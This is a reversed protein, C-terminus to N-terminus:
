PLLRFIGDAIIIFRKHIGKLRLSEQLHKIIAVEGLTIGGLFIIISVDRHQYNKKNSSSNSNSSKIRSKKSPKPVLALEQVVMKNGYIKEFLEKTAILSPERSLIFPQQSSYSKSLFTREYLLQLIRITIPVVGCFAFSLSTPSSAEKEANSNENEDIPLTELWKAISRYNRKLLLENGSSKKALYKMKQLRQLIFLTDIGFRDILDTKLSEFDSDKIGRKCLAILSVLKLIRDRPVENEYILDMLKLYLESSHVYDSLIDQELELIRSFQLEPNTEVQELVDSSLLTHMKLLRQNEQLTSLSEVFNKIEGVTEATHRSDYKIQLEKAMKNLTPGITGFNCYKIEQWIDDNVYNLKIDKKTELSSLSQDFKFFDDIIGIYSLQTLLPTIPDVDREIVILDTELNIDYKNEYLTSKIFLDNQDEERAMRNKLQNLLITSEDGISVATTITTNTTKLLSLVCNIMNNRLISRTCQKMSSRNPHYLSDNDDNLLVNALLLDDDIRPIPLTFWPYLKSRPIQSKIFHPLEELHNTDQTEWTSYIINLKNITFKSQIKTFISPVILNVKVDILFVLEMGPDNNMITQLDDIVQNEDLIVIKRVPTRDKLQTFSLIENLLPLLTLQIVLIQDAASINSLIDTLRTSIINSFQRTNWNKDM